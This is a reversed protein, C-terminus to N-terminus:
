VRFRQRHARLRRVNSSTGVLDRRPPSAAPQRKDVAPSSATLSRQGCLDWEVGFVEVGGPRRYGVDDGVAGAAVDCQVDAAGVCVADRVLKGRGFRHREFYYPELSHRDFNAWETRAVNAEANAKLAAYRKPATGFLQKLSPM